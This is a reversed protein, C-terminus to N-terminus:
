PNLIDEMTLGDALSVGIDEVGNPTVKLYKVYDGNRGKYSDGYVKIVSGDRLFGWLKNSVTSGGASSRSNFFYVGEGREVTYASEDHLGGAELSIFLSNPSETTPNLHVVPLKGERERITVLFTGSIEPGNQPVSCIFYKCDSCGRVISMVIDPNSVPAPCADCSWRPSEKASLLGKKCACPVEPILLPEINHIAIVCINDTRNGCNNRILSTCVVMGEERYVKDVPFKRMRTVIM